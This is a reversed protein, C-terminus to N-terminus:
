LAGELRRIEREQAKVTEELRRQRETQAEKKLGRVGEAIAAVDAKIGGKGDTGGLVRKAGEVEVEIRNMRKATEAHMPEASHVEIAKANSVSRAETVKYSAFATVGAILVGIAGQAFWNGKRFKRIDIPPAGPATQGMLQSLAGAIAHATPTGDLAGALPERFRGTDEQRIEEPIGPNTDHRPGSPGGNNSPRTM